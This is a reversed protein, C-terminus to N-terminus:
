LGRVCFSDTTEQVVVSSRVAVEHQQVAIALRMADCDSLVLGPVPTFSTCAMYRAGTPTATSSHAVRVKVYGTGFAAAVGMVITGIDSVLLAMTRKNYESNLGTINSMHILIVQLVCLLLPLVVITLLLCGKLSYCPTHDIFRCAKHDVHSLIHTAPRHLPPTGFDDTDIILSATPGQMCPFLLDAACLLRSNWQQQNSVAALSWM